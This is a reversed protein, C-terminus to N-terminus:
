GLLETPRFRGNANLTGSNLALQSTAREAGSKLWHQVLRWEVNRAANYDSHLEKGCKL